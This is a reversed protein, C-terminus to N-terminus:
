SLDTALFAEYSPPSWHSDLSNSGPTDVQSSILAPTLLQGDGLQPDHRKVDDSATRVADRYFMLCDYQLSVAMRSRIKLLPPKELLEPTRESYKWTQKLANSVRIPQDQNRHKVAMHRLLLASTNYLLKGSALDLGKGHSSFLTRLITFSARLIVRMINYPAHALFTDNDDEEILDSILITATAYARLVGQKSSELHQDSLFYMMQLLLVTGQSRLKNTLSMEHRHLTVMQVMANELGSMTAFFSSEQAVAAPNDNLQALTQFAENAQKSIIAFHRIEDPVYVQSPRMCVKNIIWDNAPVLPIHGSELALSICLCYCAVWASSREQFSRENLLAPDRNYEFDFGPRHLGIHMASTMATNSMILSRDSWLRVNPPPWTALILM